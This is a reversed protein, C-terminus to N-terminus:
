KLRKAIGLLYKFSTRQSEDIRHSAIKFADRLKEMSYPSRALFPWIKPGYVASLQVGLEQYPGKINPGKFLDLKYQSLEM